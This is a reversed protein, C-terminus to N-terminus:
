RVDQVFLNSIWDERDAFEEFSKNLRIYKFAHVKQQVAKVVIIRNSHGFIMLNDKAFMAPGFLVKVEELTKNVLDLSNLDPESITSQIQVLTENISEYKEDGTLPKHLSTIVHFDNEHVLNGQLKKIETRQSQKFFYFYSYHPGNSEKYWYPKANRIGSNSSKQWKKFHKLDLPKYINHLQNKTKGSLRIILSDSLEFWQGASRTTVMYLQNGEVWEFRPQKTFDNGRLSDQLLVLWREASPSDKLTWEEFIVDTNNKNSASFAGQRIFDILGYDASDPLKSLNKVNYDSESQEFIKRKREITEFLWHDDNARLTDILQTHHPKYNPFDKSFKDITGYFSDSFQSQTITVTDSSMISSDAEQTASTSNSTKQDCSLALFTLLFYFSLHKTSFLKM